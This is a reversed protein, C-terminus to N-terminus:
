CLLQVLTYICVALVLLLLSGCYVYRKLTENFCAFLAKDLLEIECVSVHTYITDTESYNLNNPTNPNWRDVHVDAQRFM